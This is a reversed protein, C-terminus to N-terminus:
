YNTERRFQNVKTKAFYIKVVDEATLGLIVFLELFFHLADSLEELFHLEDTVHETQAWPKNKLCNTAESLEEVVRYTFEKILHQGYRDNIDVPFPPRHFGRRSEIERYAEAHEAQTKLLFDLKDGVSELFGEPLEVHTINM